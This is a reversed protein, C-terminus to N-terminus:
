GYGFGRLEPDVEAAERRVDDVRAFSPGRRLWQAYAEVDDAGGQALTEVRGDALNRAFGALGLALARQRASARFGVGQVRGSVFFRAAIV